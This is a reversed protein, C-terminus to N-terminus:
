QTLSGGCSSGNGATCGFCHSGVTIPSDSWDLDNILMDNLTKYESNIALKLQQNFDCDYLNGQWDVSLIKRCMINEINLPNHSEELLSQYSDLRGTKLLHLKFRNIPMNTITYLNNFEIGYLEKLKIRYVAELEIQPPPLNPGIPNYILNLMLGSSKIGYGFQNLKKLGKISGEFVGEGRQSDVNEELYCPLSAIITIKNNALFEALYEQGNENLITLNCRDIIEDIGNKRVDLILDKFQPHLEPAGGTIDLSKINYKEVVKPIKSITERTMMETRFPSANVHCHECTQNCKYGLNVQLTTLEKRATKPFQM